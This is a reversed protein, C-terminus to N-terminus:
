MGLRDQDKQLTKSIEYLPFLHIGLEFITLIALLLKTISSWLSLYKGFFHKKRIWDLSVFDAKLNEDSSNGEWAVDERKWSTGMPSVVCLCIELSHTVNTMMSGHRIVMWREVLLVLVLERGRRWYKTLWCLGSSLEMAHQSMALLNVLSEWYVSRTQLMVPHFYSNHRMEETWIM